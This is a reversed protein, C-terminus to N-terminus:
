NSGCSGQTACTRRMQDVKEQNERQAQLYDHIGQEDYCKESQFRTGIVPDKRCYVTYKGRKREKFGPPIVFAEDDAKAVASAKADVPKTDAPKEAAPAVTSAAATEAPPEESGAIPPDLLLAPLILATLLTARM